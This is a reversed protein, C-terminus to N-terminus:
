RVILPKLLNIRHRAAADLTLMPTYPRLPAPQCSQLWTRFSPYTLDTYVTPGYCATQASNERSAIGTAEWQSVGPHHGPVEREDPAGSDGYCTGESLCLEGAGIFGEECDADPLRVVDRQQLTTAVPTGQPVPWSTLGWGLIRLPDGAAVQRTALRTTRARVPHTLHLKALDSLALGTPMGWYWDPHLEISRVAAIQGGTRQTSGIWLTIEDAPYPVPDPAMRDDSVCHAATVVTTPDLLFGNCKVTGVDPVVIDMATIGDYVQTADQGGVIASAPAADVALVGFALAAAITALLPRFLRM